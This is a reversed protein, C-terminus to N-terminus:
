RDHDQVDTPGTVYPACCATVSALWAKYVEDACDCLEKWVM